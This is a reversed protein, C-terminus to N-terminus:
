ATEVPRSSDSTWDTWSGTYVDIKTYGYNALIAAASAARKGTRCYIIVEDDASVGAEKYSDVMGEALVDDKDFTSAYEINVAGPIHGEAFESETRVDVVPLKGSNQTVFDADVETYAM